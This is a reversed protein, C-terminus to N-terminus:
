AEEKNIEVIKPDHQAARGNRIATLEQVRFEEM